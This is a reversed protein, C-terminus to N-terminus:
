KALLAYFMNSWFCQTRLQKRGIELSLSSTEIGIMGYLTYSFLSSFSFFLFSDHQGHRCNMKKKGKM